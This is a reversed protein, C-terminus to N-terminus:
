QRKKRTWVHQCTVEVGRQRSQRWVTEKETGGERPFVRKYVASAQPDHLYSAIRELLPQVRIQGHNAGSEEHLCAACLVKDGMTSAASSDKRAAGSGADNQSSQHHRHQRHYRSHTSSSSSTSSLYDAHQQQHSHDGQAHLFEELGVSGWAMEWSEAARAELLCGERVAASTKAQEAKRMKETVAGDEVFPTSCREGAHATGTAVVTVTTTIIPLQGAAGGDGSDSGEGQVLADEAGKAAQLYPQICMGVMVLATSVLVLTLVFLWTPLQVRLDIGRRLTRGIGAFNERPRNRIRAPVNAPAVVRASM